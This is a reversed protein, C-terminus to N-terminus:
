NPKKDGFLDESISIKQSGSRVDTPLTITKYIEIYSNKILVLNIILFTKVELIKDRRRSITERSYTFSSDVVLFELYSM